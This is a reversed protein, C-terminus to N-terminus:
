ESFTRAFKYGTARDFNINWNFVGGLPDKLSSATYDGPCSRAHNLCAVAAVVENLGAAPLGDAREGNSVAFGLVVQDPRLIADTNDLFPQKSKRTWRQTLNHAMAISANTLNDATVAQLTGYPDYMEGSNYVQVGVWSLHQKVRTILSTYNLVQGEIRDNASINLTQPAMTILTQPRQEAIQKIISVMACVSGSDPSLGEIMSFEAECRRVSSAERLNKGKGPILGHEIDIDFGDFGYLDIIEQLSAVFSSITQQYTLSSDQVINFAETFNATGFSASAGGISLLVKIGQQQLERIYDPLSEVESGDGSSINAIQNMEPTLLICRRIISCAPSTSFVGFSILIHTYGSRALDPPQHLEELFHGSNNWNLPLYGIIRKQAGSTAPTVSTPPIADIAKEALRSTVATEIEHSPDRTPALLPSVKLSDAVFNAAPAGYHLSLKDVKPHMSIPSNYAPFTLTVSHSAGSSTLSIEPYTHIQKSSFWIADIVDAHEFELILGKLPIVRECSNELNITIDRWHDDGSHSFTAHLCQNMLDDHHDASGAEVRSPHAAILTISISSLSALRRIFIFLAQRM